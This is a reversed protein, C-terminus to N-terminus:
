GIKDLKEKAEKKTQQKNGKVYILIDKQKITKIQRGTGQQTAKRKTLQKNENSSLTQNEDTITYSSLRKKYFVFNNQPNELFLRCNSNMSPLPVRPLRNGSLM